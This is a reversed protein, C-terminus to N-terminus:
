QLVVQVMHFTPLPHIPSDRDTDSAARHRMGCAMCTCNSRLWRTAPAMPCGGITLTRQVREMDRLISRVTLTPGAKHGWLHPPSGIAILPALQVGRLWLACSKLWKSLM